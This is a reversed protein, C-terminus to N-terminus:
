KVPKANLIRLAAEARAQLNSQRTSAEQGRSTSQGQGANQAVPKPSTTRKSKLESKVIAGERRPGDITQIDELSLAMASGLGAKNLQVAFEDDAFLLLVPVEGHGVFSLINKVFNSRQPNPVNQDAWLYSVVASDLRSPWLSAAAFRENEEIKSIDLLAACRNSSSSILKVKQLDMSLSPLEASSLMKHWEVQLQALRSEIFSCVEEKALGAASEEMSKLIRQKRGERYRLAAKSEVILFSLNSLDTTKQSGNVEWWQRVLSELSTQISMREDVRIKIDNKTDNVLAYEIGDRLLAVVQEIGMDPDIGLSAAMQSWEQNYKEYEKSAKVALNSFGASESKTRNRCEIVRETLNQSSQLAYETAVKVSEVDRALRAVWEKQFQNGLQSGKSTSDSVKAQHGKLKEFWTGHRAESAAAQATQATQSVYRDVEQSMQKLGLLMSALCSEIEQGNSNSGTLFDDWVKYSQSAVPVIQEDNLLKLRSLHVNFKAWSRSRILLEIIKGPDKQDTVAALSEPSWRERIEASKAEFQVLMGTLNTISKGGEHIRRLCQDIQNLLELEAHVQDLNQDVNEKNKREILQQKQTQLEQLAGFLHASQSAIKALKVHDNYEPQSVEKAVEAAINKAVLISAVELKANRVQPDWSTAAVESGRAIIQRMDVTTILGEAQNLSADLDFLSALISRQAEEISLLKGNRRFNSGRQGREITWIDGADDAADLWVELLTPERKGSLAFNLAHSINELDQRDGTLVAVKRLKSSGPNIKWGKVTQENAARYRIGTIYM